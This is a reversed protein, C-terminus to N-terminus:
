TEQWKAIVDLLEDEETSSATYDFGFRSVNETSLHEQSSSGTTLHFSDDMGHPVSDDIISSRNPQHQASNYLSQHSHISSALILLINNHHM